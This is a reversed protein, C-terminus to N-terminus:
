RRGKDSPSILGMAGMIGGLLGNAAALDERIRSLEETRKHIDQLYNDRTVYMDSLDRTEKKLDDVAKRTDELERMIRDQLSRFRLEMRAEFEQQVEMNVSTSSRARLVMKTVWEPPEDEWSEFGKQLREIDEALKRLRVEVVEVDRHIGSANPPAQGIQEELEKIRKRMDRFTGFVTTLAAMSGSLLGSAVQELVHSLDSM